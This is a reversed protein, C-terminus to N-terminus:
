TNQTLLKELKEIRVKLEENESKVALFDNELRKIKADRIGDFEDYRLMYIVNGNEDEGKVLGGFELSDIGVANMADEVDQAIYGIHYRGSTGSNLKYRKPTLLDFMAVYKSPLDEISNKLNRDSTSPNCTECYVGDWRNATTGLHIPLDSNYPRLSYFTSHSAFTLAQVNDLEFFTGHSSGIFTKGSSATVVQAHYTDSSPDGYSIRAASNTCVAQSQETSDRIGIGSTSNFGDDYGLYGGATNGYLTKYVTLAGGLHMADAYVSGTYIMEGDIYTESDETITIGNVTTLAKSANSKATSANSNATDIEDQVDEHDSLDSFKIAGTLNLTDTDICGGHITTTGNELGNKFTTLGNITTGMEDIKVSNEGIKLNIETVKDDIKVNIGDIETNLGIIKTLAELLEAASASIDTVNGTVIANHNRINLRVREGEKMTCTTSVPTAEDSGDIKVTGSKGDESVTSVTGYVTNEDKGKKNDNTIKVFESILEHSLAM